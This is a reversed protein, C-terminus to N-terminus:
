VRACLWALSDSLGDEESILSIAFVEVERERAGDEYAMVAAVGLEDVLESRTLSGNLDQKNGLILLPSM